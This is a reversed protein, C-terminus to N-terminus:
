SKRTNIYYKNRHHSRAPSQWCGSRWNLYIVCDSQWMLGFPISDMASFGHMYLGRTRYRLPSWSRFASQSLKFDLGASLKNEAGPTLKGAQVGFTLYPTWLASVNDLIDRSRLLAISKMVTLLYFWNKFDLGADLNNNLEPTPKGAHVGLTLYPTWPALGTYITRSNQLAISKM